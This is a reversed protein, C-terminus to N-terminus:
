HGHKLNLTPSAASSNGRTCVNKDLWGFKSDSRPRPWAHAWQQHFFPGKAFSYVPLYNLDFSSSLLYVFSVFAFSAM